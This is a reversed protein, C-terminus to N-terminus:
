YVEIARQVGLDYEWYEGWFEADDWDEGLQIIGFTDNDIFSFDGSDGEVKKAINELFYEVVTSTRKGWDLRYVTRHEETFTESVDDKYEGWDVEGYTNDVAIVAEHEYGM